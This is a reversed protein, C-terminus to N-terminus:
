SVLRLAPSPPLLRSLSHPTCPPRFCLSTLMSSTELPPTSQTRPRQVRSLHPAVHLPVLTTTSGSLSYLRAPRTRQSRLDVPARGIVKLSLFSSSQITKDVLCVSTFATPLTSSYRPEGIIIIDLRADGTVASLSSLCACHTVQLLGVASHRHTSTADLFDLELQTDLCRTWLMGPPMVNIGLPSPWRVSLFTPISLRHAAALCSHWESSSSSM